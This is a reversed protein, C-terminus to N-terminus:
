SNKWVAEELIANDLAFDEVGRKLRNNEPELEKLCKIQDIECIGGYDNRWRYHTVDTIGVRKIIFAISAGENLLIM